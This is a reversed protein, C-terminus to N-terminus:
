TAVPYRPVHCIHCATDAVIHPGVGLDDCERMMRSHAPADSLHSGFYVCRAHTHTYTHTHSLTHTLQLVNIHAHIHAICLSLCASFPSTHSHTHACTVFHRDSLFHTLSDSFDNRVGLARALSPAACQPAACPPPMKCRCCCCPHMCRHMDSTTVSCPVPVAPMHM